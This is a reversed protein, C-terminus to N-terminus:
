GPTVEYDVSQLMNSTNILTKDFGKAKVTADALPTYVGDRIQAQIQERIALGMATLTTTADWDNQRLLAGIMDGWKPSNIEVTDTMFPRPPIGKSMSGYNLTAAVLPLSQGDLTTSGELFGVRLTAPNSVQKAIHKLREELAKGGSIAAM